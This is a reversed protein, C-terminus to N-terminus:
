RTRRRHRFIVIAAIAGVVLLAAVGEGVREAVTSAANGLLYATLGVTIAWTIGGLANWAVFTRWQMSGAGALWAAWVRLGTIWRGLFVAKAGHRAFFTESRELMRLRLPQLRGPRVLARRGLHKGLQYGVNDGVIAAMAAFAIV